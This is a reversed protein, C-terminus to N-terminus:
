ISPIYEYCWPRNTISEARTYGLPEGSQCLAGKIRIDRWIEMLYGSKAYYLNRYRALVICFLWKQRMIFVTLGQHVARFRRPLIGTVNGMGGPVSPTVMKLMRGGSGAFPSLACSTESRICFFDWPVRVSWLRYRSWGAEALYCIWIAGFGHM